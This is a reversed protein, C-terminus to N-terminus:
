VHSIFEKLSSGVHALAAGFSSDAHLPPHITAGVYYAGRRGVVFDLHAYHGLGLAQHVAKGLKALEAKQAPLLDTPTPVLAYLPENRYGQIVGVSAPRGAIHEEVVVRDTHAFASELTQALADFSDVLQSGRGQLPRVRAPHPFSRFIGHALAVPNPHREVVVHHPVKAGAQQAARKALPQTYAINAAFPSSGSYPIALSELLRSISGDEALPGHLASFAIDVGHLAREAPVAIGHAHWTGAKDIFIDRPDYRERDIHELVSAGSKLSEEYGSGPGGRLVGVVTRM